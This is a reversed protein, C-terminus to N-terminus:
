IVGEERLVKEPIWNYFDERNPASTMWSTDPKELKLCEKVTLMQTKLYNDKGSNSKWRIYGSSQIHNALKLPQIVDYKLYERVASYEGSRWLMPAKSGNMQSFKTKDNLEVEHLKTEMKAGILAKDLGLYFGKQAVVLFMGDIHNLALRGCEELMGSYLALLRLDFHLGNWTFLTFGENVKKQLDLVLNQAKVKSMHPVDDYYHVNEYDTCFAAVSPTIKSLDVNEGEPLDEYIEIDYSLFEKM